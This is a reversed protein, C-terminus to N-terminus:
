GRLAELKKKVADVKDNKSKIAYIKQLAILCNEYTVRDNPDINAGQATFAEDAKEFYPLAQDMLSEVKAQLEKAKPSSLDKSAMNNIEKNFNVARNFYLAGLQFNATADNPNLALAKKYNTEAKGILEEYNAPRPLDNGTEDRPNAVNDLRIAYDLVVEFDNPNDAVKKDLMSLLESTKGTKSYYIMEMDNFRKDDPFLSKGQEITKLWNANDGREEYQQALIVYLAPEGKYQLDAAKKLNEFAKDKEGAQNAVYGAYFVMATDEAITGSLEKSNTFEKIQFAKDFDASAEAWKQDNLYGYASNGVTAYLNFLRNYLDLVAETYKPNLELAKKFASFAEMSQPVSKDKIALAGLIKGKLYWARVDDKTKDHQLALDIDENAKDYEKSNYHNEASNVKSRQAIAGLTLSCLLLSVIIRKM